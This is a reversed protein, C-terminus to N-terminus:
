MPISVGQQECGGFVGSSVPRKIGRKDGQVGCMDGQVGCMDGQVGCMYLCVYVRLYGPM